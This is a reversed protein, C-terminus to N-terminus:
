KNEMVKAIINRQQPLLNSPLKDLPFFRAELVETAQIRLLPEGHTSVRARFFVELRLNYGSHAKVMQIDTVDLGSEESVERTFAAELTEGHHVIGGPLGWVDPVWHRHRQLLVREQDDLVVGAVCIMYKSNVLWLMRWQWNGSFRRWIRFLFDLLM